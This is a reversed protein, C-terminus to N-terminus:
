PRCSRAVEAGEGVDDGRQSRRARSASARASGSERGRWQGASRRRSRSDAAQAGAPAIQEELEDIGAVLAARHDQGGIAAEGFPALDEAIRHDGGRQEVAQQMVGDDELDFAGAIAQALVSVQAPACASACGSGRGRRLWASWPADRGVAFFRVRIWAPQDRFNGSFSPLNGKSVEPVRVLCQCVPWLLEQESGSGHAQAEVIIQHKDDVAAVGTYGQVVGKDTAM